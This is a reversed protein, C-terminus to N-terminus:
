AEDEFGMVIRLIGSLVTEPDVIFEIGDGTCDTSTSLLSNILNYRKHKIEKDKDIANLDAVAEDAEVNVYENDPILEERKQLAIGEGSKAVVAGTRM